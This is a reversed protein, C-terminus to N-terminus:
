LFSISNFPQVNCIITKGAQYDYLATASVGSDGSSAQFLVFIILMCPRKAKETTLKENCFWVELKLKQNWGAGLIYQIVM